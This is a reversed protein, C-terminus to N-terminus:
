SNSYIARYGDAMESVAFKGDVSARGQDALQRGSETQELLYKTWRAFEDRAGFNTAFGTEQHEITESTGPGYVSIVPVGSQMAHHMASPLPENLHSQWFFDLGPILTQADVEADIFHVHHGAETQSAFKELRTRQSGNGFIFFHVDDRICTLLDTAWILDKLRSRPVLPAVAGAIHVHEGFGGLQVLKRRASERDPSSPGISSAVISIRDERYQHSVLSKKIEEHPVVYQLVPSGLRRDIAEFTMNTSPRVYLETVFKRVSDVDFSAALMVREAPQCWAHVINPQLRRILKRLRLGSRTLTRVSIAQNLSTGLFHFETNSVSFMPSNQAPGLVAVHVDFDDGIAGTLLELQRTAGFRDLSDIVFLLRQQSM